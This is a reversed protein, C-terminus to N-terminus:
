GAFASVQHGMLPAKYINVLTQGRAVAAGAIVHLPLLHEERPHCFRAYPAKLWDRMAALAQEAPLTLSNTLWDDFEISEPTADGERDINAFQSRLNHFSLGSGLILADDPLAQALAQGYSLHYEPDLNAHLSVQLVPIDAEPYMLMLPVFTGHDFGRSPNGRAAIGANNLAPILPEALAPAGPAPYRIEYTEPPFGYYDYLMEPADATSVEIANSEWHATVVVIVSPKILQKSVEQLFATLSRQPKHDFLPLPGGGHPVFLTSYAM